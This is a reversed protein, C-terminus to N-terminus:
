FVILASVPFHDSPFQAPTAPLEPSKGDNDIRFSYVRKINKAFIFDITSRHSEPIKMWGHYTYSPGDILKDCVVSTNSFRGQRIKKSVPGKCITKIAASEATCNFDGTIIVPMGASKGGSGITKKYTAIGCSDGTIEHIKRMILKAENIRAVAGADDLHTNFLYLQRGNVNKFKAWSCTRVYAADWGKSPKDPTDSLWFVGHELVSLKDSNYFIANFCTTGEGSGADKGTTYKLISQPYATCLDKYQAPSLEQVGIVDAKSMLDEVWLKRNNWTNPADSQMDIRVNFSMVSVTSFEKKESQSTANQVGCCTLLAAATMTMASVFLKNM